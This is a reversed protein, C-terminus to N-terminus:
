GEGVDPREFRAGVFLFQPAPNFRRSKESAAVAAICPLHNGADAIVGMRTLPLGAATSQAHMGDNAISVPHMEADGGATMVQALITTLCEGRSVFSDARTKKRIRVDLETLAHVLNGTMGVDRAPEIHLIVAPERLM